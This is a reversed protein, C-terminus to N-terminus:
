RDGGDDGAHLLALARHGGGREGEQHGGGREGEQHGVGPRRARAEALISKFHGEGRAGCLATAQACGCPRSVSQWPESRLTGVAFNM